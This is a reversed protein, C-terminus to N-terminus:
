ASAPALLGPAISGAVTECLLMPESNPWGFGSLRCGRARFGCGSARRIGVSSQDVPALGSSSQDFHTTGAFTPCHGRVNPCHGRLKPHQLDLYHRLNRPCHGRLFIYMNYIYIYVYIYIFLYIYICLYVCYIFIFLYM